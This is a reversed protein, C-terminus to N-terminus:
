RVSRELRRKLENVQRSAAALREQLEGILQGFSGRPEDAQFGGEDVAALLPEALLPETARTQTQGRASDRHSVIQPLHLAADDKEVQQVGSSGPLNHGLSTHARRPQERQGRRNSATPAADLDRPPTGAGVVRPSTDSIDEEEPEERITSPTVGVGSSQRRELGCSSGGGSGGGGRADLPPLFISGGGDGRERVDSSNNSFRDPQPAVQEPEPEPRHVTPPASIAGERLQGRYDPVAKRTARIRPAATSKAM